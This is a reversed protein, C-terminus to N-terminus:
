GHRPAGMQLWITLFAIEAKEAVVGLLLTSWGLNQGLVALLLGVVILAVPPMFGTGAGPGSCPTLVETGTSRVTYNALRNHWLFGIQVVRFSVFSFAYCLVIPCYPRDVLLLAIFVGLGKAAGTAICVLRVDCVVTQAISINHPQGVFSSGVVAAFFACGLATLFQYGHAVVLLSGTEHCYRHAQRTVQPPTRQEQQIIIAGADSEQEGLAKLAGLAKAPRQKQIMWRPSEPVFFLLLLFQGGAIAAVIGAVYRWAYEQMNLFVAYSSLCGLIFFIQSLALLAGRCEAPSIEAVYAGYAVCGAGIGVGVLVRGSLLLGYNHGSAVLISGSVVFIDTVFFLSRRGWIDGLLGGFICGVALGVPFLVRFLNQIVCGSRSDIASCSVGSEPEVNQVTPRPATSEFGALTFVIGAVCVSVILRQTLHVDRSEGDVPSSPCSRKNFSENVTRKEKGNGEAETAAGVATVDSPLSWGSLDRDGSDSNTKRGIYPPPPSAVSHPVSSDTELQSDTKQKSSSPREDDSDLHESKRREEVSPSGSLTPSDTPRMM